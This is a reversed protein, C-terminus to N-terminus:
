RVFADTLVVRASGPIPMRPTIGFEFLIWGSVSLRVSVYKVYTRVLDEARARSRTLCASATSGWADIISASTDFIVRKSSASLFNQNSVDLIVRKKQKPGVMCQPRSKMDYMRQHLYHVLQLASLHGIAALLVNDSKLVVHTLHLAGSIWVGVIEDTCAAPQWTDSKWGFILESKM